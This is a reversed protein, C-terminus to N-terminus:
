EVLKLDELAAFSAPVTHTFDGAGGVQAGIELEGSLLRRLKDLTLLSRTVSNEPAKSRAGLGGGSAGVPGVPEVGQSRLWDSVERYLQRLSVGLLGAASSM